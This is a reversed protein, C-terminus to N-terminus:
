FLLDDVSEESGRRDSGETFGAPGKERPSSPGIFDEDLCRRATAAFASCEAHM